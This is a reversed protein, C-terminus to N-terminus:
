KLQMITQLLPPLEGEKAFDNGWYSLMCSVWRGGVREVIYYATLINSGEAKTLVGTVGKFKYVVKQAETEVGQFLVAVRSESEVAANQLAKNGQQQRQIQVIAEQRTPHLSWSVEGYNPCQMCAPSTWRCATGDTQISAGALHIEGTRLPSSLISDPFGSLLFLMAVEKVTQADSLMAGQMAIGVVSDSNAQVFYYLTPQTAHKRRGQSNQLAFCALSNGALTDEIVTFGQHLQFHPFLKSVWFRKDLKGPVKEVLLTKGRLNATYANPNIKKKPPEGMRSVVLTGDDPYFCRLVSIYPLISDRALNSVQATGKISYLFFSILLLAFVSRMPFTSQSVAFYLSSSCFTLGEKRFFLFGWIVPSKM